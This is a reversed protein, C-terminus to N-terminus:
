KIFNIERGSGLCHMYAHCCEETYGMNLWADQLDAGLSVAGHNEMLVAWYRDKLASVVNEAEQPSGNDAFRSVPIGGGLRIKASLTVPPVYDTVASAAIAHPAHTHLIVRIEPRREMVARHFALSSTPRGRGGEVGGDPRIYFLDEETMEMYDVGSPTILFGGGARVSLNGSTGVVWGSGPLRRIYDLMQACLDRHEM